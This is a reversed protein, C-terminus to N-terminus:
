LCLGAGCLYGAEELLMRRWASDDDGLRPLTAALARQGRSAGFERTVRDELAADPAVREKAVASCAALAEAPLFPLVAPLAEHPLSPRPALEYYVVDCAGAVAREHTRVGRRRLDALFTAPTADRERLEQALIGVPHRAGPRRRRGAGARRRRGREGRLM